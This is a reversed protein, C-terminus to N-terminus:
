LGGLFGGAVEQAETMAGEREAGGGAASEELLRCLRAAEGGRVVLVDGADLPWAMGGERLADLLAGGGEGALRGEVRAVARAVVRRELAARVARAAAEGGASMAERLGALEQGRSAADGPWVMARAEETLEWVPHGEAPGDASLAAATELLECWGRWAEMTADVGAAGERGAGEKGLAWSDLWAKRAAAIARAVGAADGGCAEAVVDGAGAAVWGEADGFRWWRAAQSGLERFADAQSESLAPGEGEASAEALELLRRALPKYADAVEPRRGAAAGGGGDDGSAAPRAIKESLGEIEDLRAAADRADRIALLVAPDTGARTSGLLRALEAGLRESALRHGEEAWRWAPRLPRVLAAERAVLDGADAARVAKLVLSLRERYAGAAPSAAVALLRERLAAAPLGLRDRRRGARQEELWAALEAAAAYAELADLAAEGARQRQSARGQTPRGQTPRSESGAEEGQTPRSESGAEGAEGGEEEGEDGAAEATWLGGVAREAAERLRLVVESEGRGGAAAAADIAALARMVRGVAARYGPHAGADELMARVGGAVVWGEGLAVEAGGGGGEARMAWAALPALADRFVRAGMAASLGDGRAGAAGAVAEAGRLDAALAWAGLPQEAAWAAAARDIEGRGAALSAALVWAEDRGSGPVPSDDAALLWAIVARRLAASAAAGPDAAGRAELAAAEESLARVREATARTQGALVSEPAGLTLLQGAAGGTLAAWVWLAACRRGWACPAAGTGGARSDGARWRRQM